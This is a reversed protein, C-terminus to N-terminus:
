RLRALIILKERRRNSTRRPKGEACPPFFGGGGGGSVYLENLGPPCYMMSVKEPPGCWRMVRAMRSMRFSFFARAVNKTVPWLASCRSYKKFRMCLSPCSIPESPKWARGKVLIRGSVTSCCTCVVAASTPLAVPEPTLTTRGGPPSVLGNSFAKSFACYLTTSHLRSEWSAVRVSGAATVARTTPLAFGPSTTSSCSVRFTVTAARGPM